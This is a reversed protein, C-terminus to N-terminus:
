RPDESLAIGFSLVLRRGAEVATVAHWDDSRFVKLRPLDVIVRSANFVGGRKAQRLIINARFHRRNPIRDKHWPVAIGPGSRLLWLDCGLRTSSFLKLKEYGTGQRGQEWKM